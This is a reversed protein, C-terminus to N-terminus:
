RRTSALDILMVVAVTAAALIVALVYAQAHVLGGTRGLLREIAIPVTERGSRTLVSTAGFEGLSVTAALGAAVVVPRRLRPGASTWWARLPPAGLTAAAEVPGPGISDLPPVVTRVVLPLAVLAQGVPVLWWSARWDFPASDFTIVLGLGVTVASTALPLM